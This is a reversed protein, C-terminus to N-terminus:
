MVVLDEPSYKYVVANVAKVVGTANSEASSNLYKAVSKVVQPFLESTEVALASKGNFWYIFEARMQGGVDGGPNFNIMEGQEPRWFKVKDESKSYFAMINGSSIYVPDGTEMVEAKNKFVSRKTVPGSVGPRDQEEPDLPVPMTSKTFGLGIILEGNVIRERKLIFLKKTFDPGEEKTENWEYVHQFMKPSQQVRIAMHEVFAAATITFIARSMEQMPKPSIMWEASKAKKTFLGIIKEREIEPLTIYIM